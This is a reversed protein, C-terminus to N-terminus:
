FEEQFVFHLHKKLVIQFHCSPLPIDSLTEDIKFLCIKITEDFIHQYPQLVYGLDYLSNKAIIDIKYGCEPQILLGTDYITLKSGINKIKEIIYVDYNLNLNKTPILANKTLKYKCEILSKLGLWTIYQSYNDNSRFRADSSDYIFGLFYLAKEDKFTLINNEINEEKNFIFQNIFNLVTIDIKRDTNINCILENTHFNKCTMEGNSDFIGRIIIPILNDKLKPIKQKELPIKNFDFGLKYLQNELQQTLM